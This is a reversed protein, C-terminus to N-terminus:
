SLEIIEAEDYGLELLIERTHEGLEPAKSERLKPDAIPNRAFRMGNDLNSFAAYEEAVPSNAVSEVNEVLACPISVSNLKEVWHDASHERLRPELLANMADRNEIRDADAEFRADESLDSLGVAACFRPWDRYSGLAIVIDRDATAYAEFPAM